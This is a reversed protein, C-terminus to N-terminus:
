YAADRTAAFLRLLAYIIGAAGHSFGTLLRGGITQWSREGSASRTRVRLLHQGCAIARELIAQGPSADYLALLGLIAEASGAIIDLARDSVIQEETILLAALQAEELLSPKDLFRSICVLAYVVSGLGSAGGIGIVRVMQRARYRLAQCLPQTAALALDRYCSSGKGKTVYDIAALFLAVGSTGSYLDYGLPQLQYRGAWPLNQLGIWTASGNPACITHEVIQEAIALAQEELMEATPLFMADLNADRGAEEVTNSGPAHRGAHAVHACLSGEIFTIQSHLDKESLAQLRALM